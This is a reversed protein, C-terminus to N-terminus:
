FGRRPHIAVPNATKWVTWALLGRIDTRRDEELLAKAYAALKRGQDTRVLV